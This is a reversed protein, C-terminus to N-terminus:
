WGVKMGVNNYYYLIGVFISACWSNGYNEVISYYFNIVFLIKQVCMILIIGDRYFVEM